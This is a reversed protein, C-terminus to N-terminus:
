APFLRWDDSVTGPRYRSSRHKAVIGLGQQRAAARLSRGDDYVASLRAADVRADLTAELLERRTTWPEDILVRGEVELVDFAMYVTAGLGRALLDARPRGAEDLACVVGDLVCDSTRLARPLRALLERFRTDLAEAQAHGLRVRAGEVIALARAGEWAIEFEWERGEPVRVATRPRMREYQPMAGLAGAKAARVILWNREDGHLHAPVLAWEGELRTGHLQVTLTGDRRAQLLEYTGEDWIDVTGGGYEGEPIEGEFGAYALPHDEVHVALWREGARLPVGRPLAWSLLVGDRELRFDYHLARASHRQVVFIPHPGSTTAASDLPEPTRGSRRKSRYTRLEDVPTVVEPV